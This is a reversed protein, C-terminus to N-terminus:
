PTLRKLVVLGVLAAAAIMLPRSYDQRPPAEGPPPTLRLPATIQDIMMQELWAPPKPMTPPTTM